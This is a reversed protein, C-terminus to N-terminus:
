AFIVDPQYKGGSAPLPFDGPELLRHPYFAWEGDLRVPGSAALDWGALDFAGQKVLPM